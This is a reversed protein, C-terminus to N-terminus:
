KKNFYTTYVLCGGSELDYNNCVYNPDQLVVYVMKQGKVQSPLNFTATFAGGVSSTLLGASYLKHGNRIWGLFVGYRTGPALNFGTITVSKNYVYGSVVITPHESYGGPGSTMNYFWYSIGVRKDSAAQVRVDIRSAGKLQNPINVTVKGMRANGFKFTAVKIGNIGKTGAPGMLVNVTDQGVGWIELTVNTDRVTKDIVIAPRYPRDMLSTTLQAPAPSMAASSLFVVIALSIAAFSQLRKNSIM